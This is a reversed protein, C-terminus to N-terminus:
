RQRLVTLREVVEGRRIKRLQRNLHKTPDCPDGDDDDDAEDDLKEEIVYGARPQAIVQLTQLANGAATYTPFFGKRCKGLRERRRWLFRQACFVFCCALILLANSAYFGRLVSTAFDL